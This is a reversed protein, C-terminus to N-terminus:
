HAWKLHLGGTEDITIAPTPWSMMVGWNKAEILAIATGSGGVGSGRCDVAYTGTTLAM